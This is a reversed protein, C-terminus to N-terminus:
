GYIKGSARTSPLIVRTIIAAAEARIIRANPNFSGQADKGEVVGAKYLMFIEKYYPTDEDVDPLANVTNQATFETESLSRSFIYAMEARSAAQNYVEFDDDAILGNEIAYNVNGQYWPSGPVPDFELQRGTSYFSHVRTAVTIVEAVTINGTPNFTNASTGSMLNYEYASAVSQDNYYGYWASENVDIFIGPTYTRVKEFDSVVFSESAEVVTVGNMGWFGTNSGNAFSIGNQDGVKGWKAMGAPVASIDNTSGESYVMNMTTNNWACVVATGSIEPEIRALPPNLLGVDGVNEPPDDYHVVWLSIVDGINKGYALVFGGSIEMTDMGYIAEGTKAIVGGGSMKVSGGRIATGSGWNEVLGDRIEINGGSSVTAGAGSSSVGGNNLILDSAVLASYGDQPSAAVGGGSVTVPRSSYIASGIGENEVMGGSLVIPVSAYIAHVGGTNKIGGGPAVEFQGYGYLFILSQNAGGDAFGSYEAKWVVTVGEDIQLTLNETAGSVTGTVVVVDGAAGADLTGTGGHAFSNIQGALEVASEASASLPFAAFLSVLLAAMLIGSLIKRTKNKM